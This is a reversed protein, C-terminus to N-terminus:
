SRNETLPLFISFTSGAGENSAVTIEGGHSQIITFCVALGLGTGEGAKKTTFFPYFIRSFDKRVIGCGNDNIDIRATDSDAMTIAISILGDDDISQAANILINRLVQLVQERDIDAIIEVGADVTETVIGQPELHRRRISEVAENTLASLSTPRRKPPSTRSYMLLDRAISGCRNAECIVLDLDEIIPSKEDAERRLVKLLGIINAIPNNLEHATAATFEGISALREAHKLKEEVIRKKQLNGAMKNFVEALSGIEDGATVPIRHAFRGSGIIEAGRKLENVPALVRRLLLITAIISMVAIACLVTIVNITTRTLIAKSNDNAMILVNGIDKGRSDELPLRMIQYNRNQLRLRDATAQLRAPIATMTTAITVGKPSIISLEVGSLGKIMKLFDNDMLIGTSITGILQSEDHYVPAVSKLLFGKGNPEIGTTIKGNLGRKILIEGSRDKDNLTPRLANAVVQGYRDGLEIFKLNFTDSLHNIANLPHIREGALEAYYYLNDKIQPDSAFLIAYNKVAQENDRLLREVLHKVGVLHRQRQNQLGKELTIFMVPVLIITAIVTTTVIVLIIKRAISLNTFKM